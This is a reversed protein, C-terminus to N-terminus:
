KLAERAGDLASPQALFASIADLRENIASLERLPYALWRALLRGGMASQAEDIAALLSGRRGGEGSSRFLELHTRADADLVLSSGALYPRLERVHNLRLGDKGPQLKEVYTLAAGAAALAPVAILQALARTEDAGFTKTLGRKDFFSNELATIAA